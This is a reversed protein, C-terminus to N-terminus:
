ARVFVRECVRAPSPSERAKEMVTFVFVVNAKGLRSCASPELARSCPLACAHARAVSMYTGKVNPRLTQSRSNNSKFRVSKASVTQPLNLDHFFIKTM